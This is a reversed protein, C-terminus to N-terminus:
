KALPIFPACFTFTIPGNGDADYLPLRCFVAVYRTTGTGITSHYLHGAVANHESGDQCICIGKERLDGVYEPAYKAVRRGLTDYESAFGIGGLTTLVAAAALILRGRM